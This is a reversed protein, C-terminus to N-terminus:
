YEWTMSQEMLLRWMNVPMTNMRRMAQNVYLSKICTDYRGLKEYLDDISTATYINGSVVPKMAM